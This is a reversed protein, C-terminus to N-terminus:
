RIVLTPSIARWPMLTPPTAELCAHVQDAHNQRLWESLRTFGAEDNAFVRHKLKGAQRILCVNFTLKSVDIGLVPLIM